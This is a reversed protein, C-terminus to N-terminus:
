ADAAITFTVNRSGPPIAGAEATASLRYTIRLDSSSISGFGTVLDQPATSLPASGASGGGDPPTLAIRLMLGPPLDSDLVATIKRSAGNTTVMWTTTQDIADVPATGASARTVVLPGPNGSLHIENIESVEYTVTATATGIQAALPNTAAALAAALVAGSLPRIM